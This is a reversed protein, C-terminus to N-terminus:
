PGGEAWPQESTGIQWNRVGAAVLRDALENLHAMSCDKHARILISVGERDGARGVEARVMRVLRDLEMSEQEIFMRGDAEVDIVIATPDLARRDEGSERPLDIVTRAVQTFQATYMFFIILQLVVDIMPTMDFGLVTRKRRRVFIM